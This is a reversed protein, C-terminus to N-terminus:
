DISRTAVLNVELGLVNELVIDGAALPQRVRVKRIEAMVDVVCERPVPRDTRVPVMKVSLGEALVTSTVLRTPHTAESKAYREGKECQCGDAKLGGAEDDTVTIRCGKPCEICTLHKIM